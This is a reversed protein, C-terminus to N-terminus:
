KEAARHRAVVSLVPESVVKYLCFHYEDNADRPVPLIQGTYDGEPNPPRPAERRVLGISAREGMGIAYVIPSANVATLFLVLLLWHLPGHM